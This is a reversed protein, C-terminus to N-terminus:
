PSTVEGIKHEIAQASKSLANIHFASFVELWNGPMQGHNITPQFDVKQVALPM